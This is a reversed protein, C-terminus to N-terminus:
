NYHEYSIFPRESFRFDYESAPTDKAEIVKVNVPAEPAEPEEMKGPIDQAEDEKNLGGNKALMWAIFFLVIAFSSLIPLLM